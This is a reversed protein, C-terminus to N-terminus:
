SATAEAGQPSFKGTKSLNRARITCGMSTLSRSCHISLTVGTSGSCGGEEEMVDATSCGAVEDGGGGGGIVRDFVPRKTLWPPATVHGEIM